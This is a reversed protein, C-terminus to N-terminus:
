GVLNSNQFCLRNAIHNFELNGINEGTLRQYFTTPVMNGLAHIFDTGNDGETLENIDIFNESDENFIEQLHSLLKVTYEEKKGM